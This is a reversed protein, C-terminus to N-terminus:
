RPIRSVFSMTKVLKTRASDSYQKSVHKGYYYYSDRAQYVWTKYYKTTPPKLFTNYTASGAGAAWPNKSIMAPIVAAGFQYVWEAMTDIVASTGTFSDILTYGMESEGIAIYSPGDGPNTVETMTGENYTTQSDVEGTVVDYETVVVSNDVGPEENTTVDMLAADQETVPETTTTVTPEEPPQTISPGTTAAYTSFPVAVLSVCLACSMVLNKIKM